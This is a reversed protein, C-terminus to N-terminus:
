KIKEVALKIDDPMITKREAHRAFKDASKIIKEFENILYD